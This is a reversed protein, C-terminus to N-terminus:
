RLQRGLHQHRRVRAGPTPRRRRLPGVGRRHRHEGQHCQQRRLERGLHEYRRVCAGGPSTGVAFTGVRSGTAANVRTVNNSGKNAVWINTGDFALARTTGVSTTQLVSRNPDLKTINDSGSNAIWESSADSRSARRLRASRITRSRRVRTTGACRRSRRRIRPSTDRRGGRRREGDIRGDSDCDRARAVQFGVLVYSRRM